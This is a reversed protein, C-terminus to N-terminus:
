QLRYSSRQAYFTMAHLEFDSLAIASSRMQHDDLYIRLQVVEGDAQIYVPHWLRTQTAELPILEYPSTELVSTGLLAGSAAADSVMSLMSTSIQYDVAIQGYATKDVLFDVKSIYANRGEQQYFNFQKTKIDIVSVRAVTGGGHYNGVVGGEVEITIVDKDEVTAVPFIMGNLDPITNEGQINELLIYDGVRLNHDCIYLPVSFLDATISTIQLSAANRSGQSDIIFVFGEQNGAIVNMFKAQLTGSSWVDTTEGWTLTSSAWTTGTVSQYYGFCTFSDDNFAWSNNKYNYALVKNPFPQEASQDVSPFSWYVMETYYDRIGYVREIGNNENHIDFVSDPIKADIRAVNAGNCAHIGVNGVGLVQKDFSVQSFTSEAGLETDIQQWIFPLVQNGTYALEWTSREFYVILRDKIFQSTIIAEKTPADIFGGKGTVDEYWADAELPSGNQSFRCRNAYITNTGPNAGTNEVVNLLVLRDKFPVIIRASLITSTAVTSSFRPNLSAWTTGNWYRMTDSNNLTSGTHYNSVFLIYDSSASGRYNTAWFFNANTGTWTDNGTTLREWGAGTYIYAFQTDFAIVPEDNVNSVEYNTIGMVPESPYFYVDELPISGTITLSRTASNYTAAGAGTAYLAGNVQYVTFIEDGVSFLQGIKGITGPMTTAGLDGNNDTTGVRIRLRSQLQAYGDDPATSGNMLRSGFRKRVRGRFVYANSLQSFANDPILWPRVDTQLGDNFPAIMFRDIAM